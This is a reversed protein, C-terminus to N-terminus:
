ENDHERRAGILMTGGAGMLTIALTALVHSNSGTLALPPAPPAQAPIPDPGPTNTIDPIPLQPSPPPVFVPPVVVPAPVVGADVNNLNEGIGIAIVASEGTVPSIDSDVNDDVGSDQPGVIFGSPSTIVVIYGGPSLEDFLYTGDAPTTQQGVLAGKTGDPNAAFLRVVAGAVPAEDPDQIGDNNKDFFVKDGLRAKEVPPITVLTPDNEGPEDADGDGDGDPVNGDDSVDTVEEGLPSTGMVLATNNYTEGPILGEVTVSWVETCSEGVALSATGNFAAAM